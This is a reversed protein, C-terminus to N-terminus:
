SVSKLFGREARRIAIDSFAMDPRGNRTASDQARGMSTCGSARGRRGGRWGGMRGSGRIRASSRAGRLASLVKWCADLAGAPFEPGGPKRKGGQVGGPVGACEADVPGCPAPRFVLLDDDHSVPCDDGRRLSLDPEVDMLGLFLSLRPIRSVGSLLSM